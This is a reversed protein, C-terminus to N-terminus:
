RWKFIIKASYKPGATNEMLKTFILNWLSQSLLSNAAAEALSWFRESMWRNDARKALTVERIVGEDNNVLEQLRM